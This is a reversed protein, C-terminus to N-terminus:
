TRDSWIHVGSNITVNFVSKENWGQAVAYTYLDLEQQNGSITIELPPLAGGGFGFGSASMAGLTSLVPM